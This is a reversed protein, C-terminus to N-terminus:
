KNMKLEEIEARLLDNQVKLEKIAEIFYASLGNYDVVKHSDDGNLAETERVLEPLVEEINQAIVGSSAKGGVKWNFRVGNIKSLVELADDVVVIDEKLKIDSSLSSSYATVNGAVILGRDDGNAIQSASRSQLQMGIQTSTQHFDITQSSHCRMYGGTSSGFIQTSHPRIQSGLRFTTGGSLYIGDYDASNVGGQASYTTNDNAGNITITGNSQALTTHNGGVLKFTSGSGITHTNNSDAQVKWSGYNDAGGMPIGLMTRLNSNSIATVAGTTNQTASSSGLLFGKRTSNAGDGATLAGGNQKALKSIAIAANNDIDSNHLNKLSFVGTSANITFNHHDPACIGSEIFYIETNEPLVASTTGNTLTVVNTSNDVSGVKIYQPFANAVNSYVFMGAKIDSHDGTSLTVTASNTSIATGHINKTLRKSIEAVKTNTIVGDAISIGSGASFAGRALDTTHYLNTTGVELDDTDFASITAVTAAQGNFYTATVRSKSGNEHPLILECGAYRQNFVIPVISMMNMTRNSPYDNAIFEWFDGSSASMNPVTGSLTPEGEYLDDNIAFQMRTQPGGAGHGICRIYGNDSHETAFLLKAQPVERIRCAAPMATLEARASQAVGGDGNIGATLTNTATAGSFGADLSAAAIPSGSAIFVDGARAFESGGIQTWDTRGGTNTITYTRGAVVTSTTVATEAAPPNVFNNDINGGTLRGILLQDAVSVGWSETKLKIGPQSSGAYYIEASAGTPFNAMARNNDADHLSIGGGNSQISLKGAGVDKIYTHTDGAYIQMQGATGGEGIVLSTPFQNTSDIQGIKLGTTTIRDGSILGDKFKTSM